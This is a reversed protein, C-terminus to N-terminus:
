TADHLALALGARPGLGRPTFGLGRAADDGFLCEIATRKDGADLFAALVERTYAIEEDDLAPGTCGAEKMAYGEQVLLDRLTKAPGHRQVYATRYAPVLIGERAAQASAPESSWLYGTVWFRKNGPAPYRLDYEYAHRNTWGGGLDDAVALATRFEGPERALAASAEEAAGAGIGDADMALLADLLATVHDKGMPNMALLPVLEVDTRDRNQIVRLYHEFRAMDRPMGQIDRQIQLLPRYSLKM